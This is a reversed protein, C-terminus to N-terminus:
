DILLSVDMRRRHNTRIGHDFTANPNAGFATDGRKGDDEASCVKPLPASDVRVRDDSIYGLVPIESVVVRKTADAVFADNTFPRCDM